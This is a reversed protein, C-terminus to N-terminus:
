FESHSHKASDSLVKNQIYDELVDLKEKAESLQLLLNDRHVVVVVLAVVLLTTVLGFFIAVREATVKDKLNEMLKGM